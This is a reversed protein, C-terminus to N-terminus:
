VTNQPAQSAGQVSFFDILPFHSDQPAGYLLPTEKQNNKEKIDLDTHISINDM